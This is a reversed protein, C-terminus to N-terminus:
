KEGTMSQEMESIASNRGSEFCECTCCTESVGDLKKPILALIQQHALDLAPETDFGKRINSALEELIERLGLPKTM